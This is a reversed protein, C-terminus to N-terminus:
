SVCLKQINRLPLLFLHELYVNTKPSTVPISTLVNQMNIDSINENLEAAKTPRSHLFLNETLFLM